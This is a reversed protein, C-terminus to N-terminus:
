KKKEISFYIDNIKRHVRASPNGFYECNVVDEAVPYISRNSKYKEDLLKEAEINASAYELYTTTFKAIEPRNVFDIFLYALDKRQTEASITWYDTWLSCGEKPYVYEIHKNFERKHFLADGNYALSVHAEGTVLENKAGVSYGRYFVSGSQVQLAKEILKLDETNLESFSIGLYKAAAFVAERADDLMLIKGKLSEKPNFIQAWSTIPEEVLDARYALGTSGWAYPIGYGSADNLQDRVFKLNPIKSEDIPQIWGSKEFNGLDAASVMILDFNSRSKTLLRDRHDDTEYYVLRIKVGTEQQFAAIVEPAIYDEWNLISLVKEEASIQGSMLFFTFFLYRILVRM